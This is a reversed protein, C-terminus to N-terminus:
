RWAKPDYTTAQPYTAVRALALGAAHALQAARARARTGDPSLSYGAAPNQGFYAQIAQSARLVDLYRGEELCRSALPDFRSGPDGGPRSTPGSLLNGPLWSYVANFDDFGPPSM